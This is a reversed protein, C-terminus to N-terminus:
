INDMKSNVITKNYERNVIRLGGLLYRYRIPILKKFWAVMTGTLNIRKSEALGHGRGVTILLVIRSPIYKKLPRGVMDAIINQAVMDGHQLAAQATPIMPNGNEPDIVLASDGVAYIKADDECQLYQNVIVRDRNDTKLGSKTAVISGRVGGAWVFLNYNIERGSNLYITEDSVEKVFRDTIVEVGNQELTDKAYQAVKASMGPLLDKSGEIIKVKCEQKAIGHNKSIQGLQYAIEGALEVGTLGGGGVVFTLMQEREKGQPLSAASEMAKEIRRRIRVADQLSRLSVSYEKLGPINYYEPESGLAVVLYEFSITKDGNNILVRRNVADIHDVCGNIFEVDRGRLLEDLPVVMSAVENTGAAHEHLQTMFTHYTNKNILVLRYDEHEAIIESLRQAVRLGGYGAGLIVINKLM